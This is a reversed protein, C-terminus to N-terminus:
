VNKKKQEDSRGAKEKKINGSARIRRKTKQIWSVNSVNSHYNAYSKRM